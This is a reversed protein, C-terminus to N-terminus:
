EITVTAPTGPLILRDNDRFRLQIQYEPTDNFPLPDLTPVEVSASYTYGAVAVNITQIAILRRRIEQSVYLNAVYDGDSAITMLPVFQSDPNINMGPHAIGAIVIADIPSKLRTLSLRYKAIKLKARSSSLSLRASKLANEAEEFQLMSLSGRDFLEQQRSFHADANTLAIRDRAVQYEIMEVRAQERTSDLEILVSGAAVQDGAKANVAKVVGKSIPQITIRTAFNISASVTEAVASVPFLLFSVMAISFRSVSHIQSITTKM